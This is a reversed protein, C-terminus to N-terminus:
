RSSYLSFSVFAGWVGHVGQAPSMDGPRPNSPPLAMGPGPAMAVSDEGSVNYVPLSWLIHFWTPGLIERSTLMSQGYGQPLAPLSPAWGAGARSQVGLPAWARRAPLSQGRIHGPDGLPLPGLSHKIFSCSSARNGAGM